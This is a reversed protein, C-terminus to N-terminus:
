TATTVGRAAVCAGRVALPVVFEGGEGAARTLRVVFGSSAEEADAAENAGRRAERKRAPSWERGEGRVRGGCPAHNGPRYGPGAL